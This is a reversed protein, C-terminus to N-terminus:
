CCELYSDYTPYTQYSPYSPYSPYDPYSPYAPFEAHAVPVFFSSVWLVPAALMVVSSIVVLFAVLKLRPVITGMTAM